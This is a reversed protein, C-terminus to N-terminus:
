SGDLCWMASFVQPKINPIKLTFGGWFITLQSLLIDSRNWGQEREKTPNSMQCHINGEKMKDTKSFIEEEKCGTRLPSFCQTNIQSWGQWTRALLQWQWGGIVIPPCLRHPLVELPVAERCHHSRECACGALSLHPPIRAKALKQIDRYGKKIRQTQEWM